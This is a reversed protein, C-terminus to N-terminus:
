ILASDAASYFGPRFSTASGWLAMPLLTGAPAGGAAGQVLAQALVSDLHPHPRARHKGMVSSYLSNMLLKAAERVAGNKAAGKEDELVKVREWMEVYRRMWANKEFRLCARVKKLEVGREM